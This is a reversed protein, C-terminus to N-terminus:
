SNNAGVIIDAVKSKKKKKVGHHINKKFFIGVRKLDIKITSSTLRKELNKTFLSTSVQIVLTSEGHKMIWV